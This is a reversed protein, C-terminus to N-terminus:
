FCSLVRSNCHLWLRKLMQLSRIKLCVKSGGTGRSDSGAEASEFLDNLTVRVGGAAFFREGSIQGVGEAGVFEGFAACEARCDRADSAPGRGSRRLADRFDRFNKFFYNKVGVPQQIIWKTRFRVIGLLETTSCDATLRNTRPEFGRSPVQPSRLPRRKHKRSFDIKIMTGYSCKFPQASAKSTSPLPPRHAPTPVIVIM